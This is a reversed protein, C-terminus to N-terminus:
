PPIGPPGMGPPYYIYMLENVMSSDYLEICILISSGMVYFYSWRWDEITIPVTLLVEILVM